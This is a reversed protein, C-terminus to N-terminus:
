GTASAGARAVPGRVFARLAACTEAPRDLNVLHAAGPVVRLWGRRAARLFSDNALGIM